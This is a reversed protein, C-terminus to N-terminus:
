VSRFWRTNHAHARCRQLMLSNFKMSRALSSNLASFYNVTNIFGFQFGTHKCPVDAYCLVDGICQYLPLPL